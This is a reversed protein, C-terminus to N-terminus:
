ETAGHDLAIATLEDVLARMEETTDLPIVRASAETDSEDVTSVTHADLADRIRQRMTPPHRYTM